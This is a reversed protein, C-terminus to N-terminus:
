QSLLRCYAAGLNSKMEKEFRHLSQFISKTKKKKITFTINAIGPLM